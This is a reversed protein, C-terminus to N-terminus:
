DRLAEALEADSLGYDRRAADVSVYGLRVDRIVAARDRDAAAGYGGGGPFALMVRAGEAIRSRGKGPLPTGDDLSVETAGGSQGGNRGHAPHRVRDFMASFDFEHGERAGVEMYQGLGGRHRGPGGSDPRLEKRWIIVPGTHETAEIPMTMVGSPFATASLGDLTPRAGSGGSNFTL